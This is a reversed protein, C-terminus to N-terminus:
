SKLYSGDTFVCFSQQNKNKDLGIHVKGKMLVKCKVANPNKGGLLLKPTLKIKRYGQGKSLALCSMDKCNKNVVFGNVNHFIVKLKGFAYMFQEESYASSSIFFILFLYKKM